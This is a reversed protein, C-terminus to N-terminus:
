ITIYIPRVSSAIEAAATCSHSPVHCHVQNQEGHPRLLLCGFTDQCDSQVSVLVYPLWLQQLATVTNRYLTQKGNCDDNRNRKYVTHGHLEAKAARHLLTTCSALGTGNTAAV